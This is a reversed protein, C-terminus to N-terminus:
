SGPHLYAVLRMLRVFVPFQWLRVKLSPKPYTPSPLLSPFPFLSVLRVYIIELGSNVEAPVEKSDKQNQAPLLVTRVGARLAGILKEKIGGVAMVRGRLTIEGTMALKPDVARGSFLSILAITHALGASPGDKPVAGSPCHVHLSRGKMIDTSSDKALGLDYSHSRVWSLAVEVSEKLVDGLKGTLRISGNGPMDAMEIFLISGTGGISYAVLGTVVGPRSSVGAIEDEFKQPGLIVEVDKLSVEPLYADADPEDKSDAYEVAKFRCVSGIERELNRVGSERTYSSIIEDVVETSLTIHKQELGNMNIQKPILHQSAIHRKELATYGPLSIVEMRDLLPSPITALSNATAIFLVQSLDIPVALYHDTFAHNQEPDCVELMAASPSGHFNAEALKDLEDLLFVPNRSGAKRLGNIILGPMAAVYTRRHGRIEAEDRVGGLSIRQFKRGLATAISKALSTKGTGPPGVLLLIPPRDTKRQGRLKTIRNEVEEPTTMDPVNEPLENPAQGKQTNELASVQEQLDKNISHKLKLVALYELLRKKTPELGYHDDDLQKRARKLTQSGFQDDTTQEWPIEALTELYTRCVQYEAQAPNMKRLRKMERQAVKLAEGSMNAKDLKAQLEELENPEDRGEPDSGRFGGLIPGTRGSPLRGLGSNRLLDFPSRPQDRELDPSSRGKHFISTILIGGRNDNFDNEAKLGEVVLSLREHVDVAGLVKTKDLFRAEMISATFDALRGANDLGKGATHREIQKAILANSNRDTEQLLFGSDTRIRALLGAALEKLESILRSTTPLIPSANMNKDELYSVDAQIHPKAHTVRDIRIRVMGEFLFAWQGLGRGEIGKLQGLTGYGFLDEPNLAEIGVRSENPETASGNLPVLGIPAFQSPSPSPSRKTVAKFIARIDARDRIPIRIIGGPLLVSGGLLPILALSRPREM